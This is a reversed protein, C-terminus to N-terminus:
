ERDQQEEVAEARNKIMNKKKKIIRRGGLDVRKGEGVSKRDTRADEVVLDIGEGTATARRVGPLGALAAAAGSVDGAATLAVRDSIPLACTQVGTVSSDRIGDEEQFFFSCMVYVCVVSMLM